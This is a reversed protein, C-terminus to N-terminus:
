VQLSVITLVEEGKGGRNSIARPTLFHHQVDIEAQIKLQIFHFM